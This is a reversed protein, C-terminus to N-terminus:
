ARFANRREQETRAGPWRHVSFSLHYCLLVLVWDELMKGM